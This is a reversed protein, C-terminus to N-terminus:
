GRHVIECYKHLLLEIMDVSERTLLIKPHPTTCYYYIETNFISLSELVNPGVSLSNVKGASINLACHNLPCDNVHIGNMYYTTVRHYGKIELSAAFITHRINADLIKECTGDNHWIWLSLRSPNMEFGKIFSHWVAKRTYTCGQKSVLSLVAYDNANWGYAVFEGVRSMIADWVIDAIRKTEGVIEGVLYM